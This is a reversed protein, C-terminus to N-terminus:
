RGHAARGAEALNCGPHEPGRWNRRDPTHGLHWAAPDVPISPTKCEPNACRIREGADLRAQWYRRRRAHEADYGRQQRTGRARDRDRTHEPCRNTETLRPCGFEACVKLTM